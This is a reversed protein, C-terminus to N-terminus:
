TFICCKQYVDQRAVCLEGQFRLRVSNVEYSTVIMIIINESDGDSLNFVVSTMLTVMRCIDELEFYLFWVVKMLKILYTPLYDIPAPPPPPPDREMRSSVWRPSKFLYFHMDGSPIWAQKLWLATRKFSCVFLLVYLICYLLLQPWRFWHLHPGQFFTKLSVTYCVLHCFFFLFIVSLEPTLILFYMWLVICICMYLKLVINWAFYMQWFKWNHAVVTFRCRRCSILGNYVSCARMKGSFRFAPQAWVAERVRGGGQSFLVARRVFIFYM